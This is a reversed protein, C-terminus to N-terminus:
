EDDTTMGSCSSRRLMNKGTHETGQINQGPLREGLVQRNRRAMEQVTQGSKKELHTTDVRDCSYDMKRGDTRRAM